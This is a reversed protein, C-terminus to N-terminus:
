SMNIGDNIPKLDGPPSSCGVEALQHLAQTIMGEASMQPQNLKM